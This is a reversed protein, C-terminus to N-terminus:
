ATFKAALEHYFEAGLYRDRTDQNQLIEQSSGSTVVCGNVMVHVIQAMTLLQDVHHDSILIGLGQAALETFLNKLEYISKPDVGAFPEDLMLLTPKMLLARVVELKRKQGGSLTEAPQHLAHNLNTLTLWRHAEQDFQEHPKNQWAPHYTFVVALNDLVSLQRILSTHQPLYQLGQNVREPVSLNDIALNNFMIRSYNASAKPLPTLGMITRLLTTKGAGNPGLLATVGGASAGLSINYLLQRKGAFQNLEIVQLLSM